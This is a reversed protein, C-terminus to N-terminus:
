EEDAPYDFQSMTRGPSAQYYADPLRGGAQIVRIIEDRGQGDNSIALREMQEIRSQIYKSRYRAAFVSGADIARVIAVSTRTLIELEAGDTTTLYGMGRSVPPEQGSDTPAIDNEIENPSRLAM